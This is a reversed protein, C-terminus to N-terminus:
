RHSFDLCKIILLIVTNDIADAPTSKRLRHDPASNRGGMQLFVKM